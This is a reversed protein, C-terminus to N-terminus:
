EKSLSKVYLEDVKTLYKDKEAAIKKTCPPCCVYIIQGDVITWKPNKPLNHGMVPCKAQTNAFNTHITKWHKADLQGKLCGKCCLFVEEKQKGVTVKVPTGHSGLKEGTVPCIQQAATRLQDRRSLQTQPENENQAYVTVIGSVVGLATLLVLTALKKM